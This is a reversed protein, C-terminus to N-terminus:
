AFLVILDCLVALTYRYVRILSPLLKILNHLLLSSKKRIFKIRMRYASMTKIALYIYFCRGIYRAPGLPGVCAVPGLNGKLLAV